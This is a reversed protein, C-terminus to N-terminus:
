DRSCSSCEMSAVVLGMFRTIVRQMGPGVRSGAGAAFLLVLFTVAAGVAAAVIATVPLADPTHIAASAAALLGLIVMVVGPILFLVWHRRIASGLDRGFDDVNAKTM